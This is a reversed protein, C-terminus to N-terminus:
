QFIAGEEPTAARRKQDSGHALYHELLASTSANFGQVSAGTKRSASLQSRVKKSLSKGLEVGFGDFSNLGWLFGQVVTRHEYLAVLQGVAFADLRSILLSSSPRNGPCVMHERLCEPADEQILDVLTKGCALADPQAFFHSMLEDHNSVAETLLDVPQQSEMFGIFDAPIVRGQHMIQFLTCQPTTCSAGTDIEGSRHLLPTGDLGVRKGNSETDIMQVYTPFGRLARSCPIVARCGYGLFTSNWVGLLGLLVPLNDNLPAGFFHEDMEHAGDLLECMIRYSYQLSLPLMGVVSFLSFRECIWPYYKFINGKDIGFQRCSLPNDSIAIMHRAIVDAERINEDDVLDTVLWDQLTRANLMTETESESYSKSIVLVLTRAPDMDRTAHFFEVPDVGSLFRLTRNQCASSADPDTQLAQSVFEPGCGGGVCIVHVFTQGTISRYEGSRFRESFDRIKERGAHVQRLLEPGDSTSSVFSDNHLRLHRETGSSGRANTNLQQEAPPRPQLVLPYNAPMRLVHHLVPQDETANIHCGRRLSERRETMGMADALDFLLEMTEGTIRQRSYDLILKRPSGGRRNSSKYITVLGACRVSDNCLNRLHLKDDTDFRDAQALLADFQPLDTCKLGRLSTSAKSRYTADRMSM